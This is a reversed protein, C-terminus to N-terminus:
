FWDKKMEPEVTPELGEGPVAMAISLLRFSICPLIREHALFMNQSKSRKDHTQKKSPANRFKFWAQTRWGRQTGSQGSDLLDLRAQFNGNFFESRGVFRATGKVGVNRGM